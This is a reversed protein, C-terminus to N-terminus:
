AIYTATVSLPPSPPFTPVNSEVAPSAGATNVASVRYKVGRTPNADVTSYASQGVVYPVSALAGWSGGEPMSEVNFSAPPGAGDHNWAVTVSM